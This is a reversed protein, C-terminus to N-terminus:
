HVTLVVCGAPDRTAVNADHTGSTAAPALMAGAALGTAVVKLWFAQGSNRGKPPM